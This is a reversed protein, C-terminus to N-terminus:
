EIVEDAIALLAPPVKIGLAESTQLNILFEFKTPQIVPLDAAAEGKLIRATYIGSQRFQDSVNAGYSMLGGSEVNERRTYIAPIAHRMGLVVLQVRRAFFLPGTGVLLGDVKKQALSAFAINIERSDRAAFVEVQGGISAAAAQVERVFPESSPYSPNVLVAFRTARPLLEHLLSMFKTGLEATMFAIGTVNGGPRNLSAVLGFQVPDGSTAFVIPITKTAAKAAMAAELSGPTAIVSVRRRVLDAALEPLRNPEDHAYRYEITLNRGEEYGSDSLGKRFDTAGANTEPSALHLYGVVPTERRQQARVSAPWTTTAGLVVFFDRRRM